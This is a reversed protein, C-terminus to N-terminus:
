VFAKSMKLCITKWVRINLIQGFVKLEKMITIQYVKKRFSDFFASQSPIETNNQRQNSNLYGYSFMGKQYILLLSRRNM